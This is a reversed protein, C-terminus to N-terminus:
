VTEYSRRNRKEKQLFDQQVERLDRIVGTPLNRQVEILDNMTNILNSQDDSFSRTTSSPSALPLALSPNVGEFGYDSMMSAKGLTLKKIKSPLKLDLKPVNLSNSDTLQSSSFMSEKRAKKQSNLAKRLSDTQSKTVFDKFEATNPRLQTSHLRSFVDGSHSRPPLDSPYNLFKTNKFSKSDEKTMDMESKIEVPSLDEDSVDSGILSGPRPSFFDFDDSHVSIQDDDILYSQDEELYETEASEIETNEIPEVPENSTRPVVMVSDNPVIETAAIEDSEVNIVNEKSLQKRKTFVNKLSSPKFLLSKSKVVSPPQSPPQFDSNIPHSKGSDLKIANVHDDQVHGHPDIVSTSPKPRISDFSVPTSSQSPTSDILNSQPDTENSLEPQSGVVRSAPEVTYSKPVVEKTPIKKESDPSFDQSTLSPSDSNNSQNNVEISPQLCHPDFHHSQKTTIPNENPDADNFVDESSLIEVLTGFVQPNSQSSLSRHHSKVSHHSTENVDDNPTTNEILEDDNPVFTDKRKIEEKQSDIEKVMTVDSFRVRRSKKMKLSNLVESTENESVESLNTEDTSSVKPLSDSSTVPSHGPKIRRTNATSKFDANAKLNAFKSHLSGFQQKETDATQNSESGKQDRRDIEEVESQVDDESSESSTQIVGTEENSSSSSLEVVDPFSKKKSSKQPSRSKQQRPKQRKPKTKHGKSLSKQLSAFTTITQNAAVEPLSNLSLIVEDVPEPRSEIVKKSEEKSNEYLFKMSNSRQLGRSQNLPVVVGEDDSDSRYQMRISSQSDFKYLDHM